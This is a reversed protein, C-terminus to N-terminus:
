RMKGLYLHTTLPITVVGGDQLKEFVEVLASVFAPYKPHTEDPASSISALWGVLQEQNFHHPQTFDFRLLSNEAFYWEHPKSDIFKEDDPNTGWGNEATLARNFERELEEHVEYNGDLVSYRLFYYPDLIALSGNEKLIRLFERKTPEPNFWHTAQGVIILDISVDPLTTAESTGDVSHFISSKGLKREAYYRMDLNPEVAYLPNGNEVFYRSVIGTGAGIDAIVSESTLRTKEFITQIAKQAYDPRYLAYKEAKSSFRSFTDIETM